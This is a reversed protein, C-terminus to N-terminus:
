AALLRGVAAISLGVVNQYDGEVSEVFDKARGQIAYGGAKDLPEGTTVYEIIEEELLERFRVRTKVIEVHEQGAKIVVVSSIVAHESGSLLRLMEAAEADSVPKELLWDGYAVVTDGAIVIDEPYRQAVARAKRVGNERTVEEPTAGTVEPVDPDVVIISYGAEELLAKRRPSKSALILTM